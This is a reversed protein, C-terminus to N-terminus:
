IQEWIFVLHFFLTFNPLMERKEIIVSWSVWGIVTEHNIDRGWVNMLKVHKELQDQEYEDYGHYYKGTYTGM